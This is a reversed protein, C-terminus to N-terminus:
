TTEMQAKLVLKGYERCSCHSNGCSGFPSVVAGFECVRWPPEDLFRVIRSHRMTKRFRIRDRDASEAIQGSDEMDDIESKDVVCAFHMGDSSHITANVERRGCFVDQDSYKSPGFIPMSVVIRTGPKIRTKLRECRFTASRLGLGSVRRRYEAKQECGERIPCGYCPNIRVSM